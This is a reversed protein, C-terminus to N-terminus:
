LVAKRETYFRYMKACLQELAEDRKKYLECYPWKLEDYYKNFRKEYEKCYDM